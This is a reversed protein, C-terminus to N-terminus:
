PNKAAWIKASIKNTSADHLHCFSLRLTRDVPNRVVYHSVFSEITIMRAVGDVGRDQQASPTRKVTLARGYIISDYKGCASFFKNFPIGLLSHRSM